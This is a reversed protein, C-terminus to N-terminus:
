PLSPERAARRFGATLPMGSYVTKYNKYHIGLKCVCCGSAYYFTAPRMRGPSGHQLYHRSNAKFIAVITGKWMDTLEGYM